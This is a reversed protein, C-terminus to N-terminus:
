GIMYVNTASMNTEQYRAPEENIEKSVQRWVVKKEVVGNYAVNLSLSPFSFSSWICCIQYWIFTQSIRREYEKFNGRKFKDM